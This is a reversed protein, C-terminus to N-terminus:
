CFLCPTLPVGKFVFVSGALPKCAEGESCFNSFLKFRTSRERSRSTDSTPTASDSSVCAAFSATWITGVTECNPVLMWRLIPQTLPFTKGFNTLARLAGHLVCAAMALADASPLCTSVSPRLKLAQEHPWPLRVRLRRLARAHGLQLAGRFCRLLRTSAWTLEGSAFGCGPPWPTVLWRDNPISM